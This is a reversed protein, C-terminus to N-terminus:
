KWNRPDILKLDNIEQTKNLIEQKLEYIEDRKNEFRDHCNPCRELSKQEECTLVFNCNTCETLIFEM